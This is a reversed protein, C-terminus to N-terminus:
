PAGGGQPARQMAAGLDRRGLLLYQLVGAAAALQRWQHFGLNDTFVALMMRWFDWWSATRLRSRETLLIALLTIFIGTVWALGCLILVETWGVAGAALLVIALVYATIEVVPAFAEFLIFFPMGFLGALGYRPNLIMGRNRFLAQLTGRQWRNRQSAYLGLSEPVETYCVADPVFVIRRRDRARRDYLHRHLRITLEIDDTIAQAWSGGVEELLSKRIMLLAGSICLMSHLLSLGTRAWQFSRAYEIEQNLGLMTRPLGRGTLVGAEVTLGNSPRVIGGAAAVRTDFLFPRVMHLLGDPEIVCDADIVILLPYKALGMAANIADARRGNEKTVVVLNPHDPSEHIGTIKETAIKEPWHRDIRRLHFHKELEEFTRDTSGDDAVIVEHKPYHLKLANEVVGVIISEENHAPILVSVPMTLDSRAIHEFEAFSIGQNYRRILLSGALVLVLYIVHLAVFYVLIFGLVLHLITMM